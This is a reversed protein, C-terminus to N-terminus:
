SGTRPMDLAHDFANLNVNRGLAAGAQGAGDPTARGTHLEVLRNFVGPDAQGVQCAAVGGDPNALTIGIPRKINGVYGVAVVREGPPVFRLVVDKIQDVDGDAVAFRNIHADQGEGAPPGFVFAVDEVVEIAVADLICTFGTDRAVRQGHALAFVREHVTACRGNGGVSGAVIDHFICVGHGLPQHHLRIVVEEVGGTDGVLRVVLRRWSGDKTGADVDADQRDDAQGAPQVPANVEIVRGAGVTNVRLVAADHARHTIVGRAVFQIRAVSKHFVPLRANGIQGDVEVGRHGASCVGSRRAAIVRQGVFKGAVAGIGLAM